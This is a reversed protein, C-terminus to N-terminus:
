YFILPRPERSPIVLFILIKVIIKGKVFEFRTRHTECDTQPHRYLRVVRGM